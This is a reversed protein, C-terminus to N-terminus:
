AGILKQWGEDPAFRKGYQEELTRLRSHIKEAGASHIYSFPGGRFPAFGTGFIMAADAVDESEVVNERLCAVCANLMPLVLRDLTDEPADDTKQNKNAEGKKWKYIGRGTKKGLDEREVMETLWEPSDPLGSDLRARLMDAVGVCIDLGVQDALEVPGMPMGFNEAVKDISEAPVGEDLMLIAEMLYPTLARNVLFGPADSVPVPLRDLQGTFVRARAYHKADLKEHTVVEVLPMVAVPNFFHLGILREPEKVSRALEHLPISSTNTALIAGAKMRPEVEEYVASKIDVNEPVAEIILDSRAAGDNAFDPVLRDLVERKEASSYRKRSCLESLKNIAHSIKEPDKDFLTVTHGKVASWGAIDGGMEGAGVVHVHHVERADANSFGKLTERLFFVRMLNQATDTNLLRAFSEMEAEAMASSDGGHNEWLDILADPAPYHEPPAKKASQSRMQRVEFQRAPGSMMVQDKLGHRHKDLDGAIASEVAALVHREEVVDDVLGLKKAKKHAVPKGTLMLKMAEVPNILRPLRVTGGLGPHLGLKVEPFGFRAGPVALRHSCSLALELGGGLCQGHVVAIRPCSLAEFSNVVEHARTLKTLVESEATLDRFETIDAGMCFSARKASRLIVARPAQERIKGVLEGLEGLVESSLVNASAGQQDLILWAIDHEDRSLRWHNLRTVSVAQEDEPGLQRARSNLYTLIDETM